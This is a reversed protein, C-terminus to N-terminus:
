GGGLLERVKEFSMFRGAKVGTLEFSVSRYVGQYGWKTEVREYSIGAEPLKEYLIEVGQWTKSAVDESYRIGLEEALAEQWKRYTSTAEIPLDLTSVLEAYEEDTRAVV